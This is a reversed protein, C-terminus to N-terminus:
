KGKKAKPKAAQEVPEAKPAPKKAAVKKAAPKEEAAAPVEAAPATAAAPPPTATSPQSASEPLFTLLMEGKVEKRHAYGKKLACDICYRVSKGGTVVEKGKADEDVMVYREPYPIHRMCVNCDVTGVSLCGRRM